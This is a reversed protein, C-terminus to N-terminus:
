CTLMLFNHAVVGGAAYESCHRALALFHANEFTDTVDCAAQLGLPLGDLHRSEPRASARTARGM